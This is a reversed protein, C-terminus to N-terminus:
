PRPSVTLPLTAGARGIELSVASSPAQYFMRALDGASEVKRGAAKIVVDGVALGAEAAPGDPTVATVVVSGGKAGLRRELVKTLPEFEFGLRPWDSRRQLLAHENERVYTILQRVLDTAAQRWVVGRGVVPRPPQGADMIVGSLNYRLRTADVDSGRVHVPPMGTRRENLVLLLDADGPPVHVLLSPNKGDYLVQKVDRESEAIGEVAGEAVQIHVRIAVGPEAAGASAAALFVILGKSWAHSM